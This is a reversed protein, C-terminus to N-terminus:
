HINTAEIRLQEMEDQSIRRKLHFFFFLHSKREELPPFSMYDGYMAKLFEDYGCPVDITTDEFPFSIVKEFWEARFIDKKGSTGTYAVIWEGQTDKPQRIIQKSLVSRYKRLFLHQFSYWLAKKFNGQLFCYRIVSFPHNGSCVYFLEVKKAFNMRKKLVEDYPVNEYDLVFVDVFAGFLFPISQFEWITSKRHSFKTHACYYGNINPDIIEYDTGELKSRLSIFKNFDARKMYVDVDDDWPIFGHHRVAGIMTGGAACYHIEFNKCFQDFAKLTQLLLAKYTKKEEASFKM